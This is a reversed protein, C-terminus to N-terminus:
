SIGTTMFYMASGKMCEMGATVICGLLVDWKKPVKNKVGKSVDLHEILSITQLM